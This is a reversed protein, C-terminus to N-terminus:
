VCVRVTDDPLLVLAPDGIAHALGPARERTKLEEERRAERQALLEAQRETSVLGCFANTRWYWASNWISPTRKWTVSSASSAMARLATACFVPARPSRVMMSFNKSSVMNSTGSTRKNSASDDSGITRKRPGQETARQAGNGRWSGSSSGGGGGGGWRGACRGDTM